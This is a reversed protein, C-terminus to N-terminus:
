SSLFLVTLDYRFFSFPPGPHTVFTKGFLEVLHFLAFGCLVFFYTMRKLKFLILLLILVASELSGILSLISFPTDFFRPIFNQLHVTTDFDMQDFFGAHVIFTFPIFLFLLFIGLTLGRKQNM